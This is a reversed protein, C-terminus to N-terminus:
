KNKLMNHECSYYGNFNHKYIKSIYTEFSRCLVLVLLLQLHIGLTYNEKIFVRDLLKYIYIYVCIYIYVIYIHIIYLHV